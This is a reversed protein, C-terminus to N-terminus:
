RRSDDDHSTTARWGGWIIACHDTRSEVANAPGLAPAPRHQRKADQEHKCGNREARQGTGAADEDKGGAQCQDQAVRGPRPPTIDMGLSAPRLDPMIGVHTQPAGAGFAAAGPRDLALRFISKAPPEPCLARMPRRSTM